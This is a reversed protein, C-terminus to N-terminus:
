LVVPGTNKVESINTVSRYKKLQYDRTGCIYEIPVNEGNYNTEFIDM